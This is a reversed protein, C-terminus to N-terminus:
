KATTTPTMPCVVFKRWNNKVYDIMYNVLPQTDFIYCPRPTTVEYNSSMMLTEEAVLPTGSFM